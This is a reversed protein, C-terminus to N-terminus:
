LRGNGGGYDLIRISKSNGFAGIIWQANGAPRTERYDPDVASYGDNYIHRAFDDNSFHDFAVTFLLECAPCRHYYIPIGSLALVQRGRAIECNKHFDVVGYLHSVGGCVKCPASAPAVASLAAPSPDSMM